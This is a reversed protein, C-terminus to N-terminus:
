PPALWPLPAVRCGTIDPDHETVYAKSFPWQKNGLEHQLLFWLFHWLDSGVVYALKDPSQGTDVFCVPTRCNSDNVLVYYNGCGDGAVPVWKHAKWGPYWSLVSRIDLVPRGSEIGLVGGPGIPASNLFGLLQKLAEPFTIGLSKEADMIQERTASPEAKVGAPWPVAFCLRRVEDPLSM